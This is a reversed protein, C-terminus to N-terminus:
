AGRSAIMGGEPRIFCVGEQADGEGGALRGIEAEQGVFDEASEGEFAGGGVNALM